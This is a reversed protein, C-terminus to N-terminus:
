KSGRLRVYLTCLLSLMQAPSHPWSNKRTSHAQTLQLVCPSAHGGPWRQCAHLSRASAPQVAHLPGLSVLAM